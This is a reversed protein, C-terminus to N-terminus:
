YFYIQNKEIRKEIGEYLRQLFHMEGPNLNNSMVQKDSVTGNHYKWRERLLQNNRTERIRRHKQLLICERDKNQATRIASQQTHQTVQM